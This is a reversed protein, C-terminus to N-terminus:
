NQYRRKQQLRTIHLLPRQCKYVQVYVKSLVSSAIRFPCDLSAPLIPCLLCLVFVFLVFFV